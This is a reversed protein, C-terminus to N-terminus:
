KTKSSLKFSPRDPSYLVKRGFEVAVQPAYGNMSALLVVKMCQYIKGGEEMKQELQRRDARRLRLFAPHRPLHRGARRRDDQGAGGAAAGVSGMVNVVGMVAVVIGFAPVGDAVKSVCHVPVHAEPPPNRNRRGDPKRDRLREPQRGGDHAPLRDPVRGCPPRAFKPYKAFIPSRRSERHRDRDVDPRGQAGQCSRTCCRWCTWTSAGQQLSSGKFVTPLAAITAKIAPMGNGAVFGGIMLGFIAVYEAPVWLAALSGHLAYTGVSALLIIVYGIILLM